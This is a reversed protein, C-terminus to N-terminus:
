VARVFPRFKSEPKLVFVSCWVITTQRPPAASDVGAAAPSLFLRSGSQLWISQAVMGSLRSLTSKCHGSFLVYWYQALMIVASSLAPEEEKKEEQQPSLGCSECAATLHLLM